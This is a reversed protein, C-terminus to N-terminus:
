SEGHLHRRFDGSLPYGWIAKLSRNPKYTHDDKGRGTTLGLYIWNAAKYSTGKFRETDVFTELFYIPHRYLQQWADSIHRAIRGLLHGALHRVQVWPPILFRSNYAILHINARRQHTSWGIFRDRPGLHRPASSFTFCAIPRHGSFILFKLQEGVAHTYGLYHHYEILSNYLGELESRRVQRIQLPGLEKVSCRIPRQDIEVRAPKSRRKALPNPPSQKKPPLKLLGARHLQLMLGRCVMDCLQGNTQQWDWAECLKVSLARRSADPNCAILRRIFDIQEGSIERGRYRIVGGMNSLLMAFLPTSRM